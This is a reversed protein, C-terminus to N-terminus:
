HREIPVITPVRALTIPLRVGPLLLVAARAPRRTMDVLLFLKQYRLRREPSILVAATEM